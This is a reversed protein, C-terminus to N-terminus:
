REGRKSIEEFQRILDHLQDLEGEAFAEGGFRSRNYRRVIRNVLEAGAIERKTLSDAHERPTRWIPRSRGQKSLAADLKRMLSEAQVIQLARKKRNKKRAPHRLRWIIFALLSAGLLGSVLVIITTTSIPQNSQRREPEPSTDRNRWASRWRRTTLWAATLAEVQSELDYAIINKEWALETADLFSQILAVLSRDEQRRASGPPTPDYAVWGVGPFYAEVWSHADAQTIAYYAGDTGYPNIRGGLFGTVNRAPVGAIRLMITMATSFFECHGARRNFLFDELPQEDSTGRLDLSYRYNSQLHNQIAAAMREQNDGAAATVEETLQRVRPDLEPLQLYPALNTDLRATTTTPLFFSPSEPEFPAEVEYHVVITPEAERRVERLQSRYLTRHSLGAGRREPTMIVVASQPPLLLVPPDLDELYIKYTRRVSRIGCARSLCYRDGVRDLEMRTNLAPSRSWRRGDYVDYAAGRWHLNLRSPPSDPMPDLEVRMVVTKDTRVVGMDGLEVSDSFGAVTVRQRPGGALFGLGVRPFFVFLAGSMIFIPIALGATVWLFRGSIIRRSNLIRNVHARQAEPESRRYNGEIESRLHTLCMAWPLAVVFGGYLLAFSVDQDLVSAAILHVLSLVVIQQYQRASRRNWLRSIQLLLAFEIGCEILSGGFIIRIIQGIFVVFLLGTWVRNFYPRNYLSEESWWSAFAAIVAIVLLAPHLIAGVALAVIGLGAVLYAVVKHSTRFRM